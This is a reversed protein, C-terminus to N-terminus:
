LAQLHQSSMTNNRMTSSHPTTPSPPTIITIPTITHRHQPSNSCSAVGEGVVTQRRQQWPWAAPLPMSTNLPPSHCRSNRLGPEGGPLGRTFRPPCCRKQQAVRGQREVVEREEEEEEAAVQGELVRVSEVWGGALDEASRTIWIWRSRRVHPTPRPPPPPRHHHPRHAPPPPTAPPPPPSPHHLMPPSYSRHHLTPSCARTTPRPPAASEPAANASPCGGSVPWRSMVCPLQLLLL